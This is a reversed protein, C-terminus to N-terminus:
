DNWDYTIYWDQNIKKYARVGSNLDPPKENLSNYLPSPSEPKYILGKIDGGSALGRTSNLFWVSNEDRARMGMDIDLQRFLENYEAWRGVTLQGSPSQWTPVIVKIPYDNHFMSILQTYAKKENELQAILQEDSPHDKFVGIVYAFGLVLIVVGLLPLGALLSISWALIKKTKPKM